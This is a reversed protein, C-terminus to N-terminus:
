HGGVKHGGEVLINAGAIYSSDDSALYAALSATEEPSAMRKLPISALALADLEDAPVGQAAAMGNISQRAMDTDVWGPSIANVLIGYPALDAAACEMLGLLAFKSTNYAVGTAEGRVGSESAVLIIRGGGGQKVMQQAVLQCCNYSGILNIGLTERFERETTELISKTHHVGANSPLADVAGYTEMCVQLVLALENRSRVDASQYVAPYRRSWMWEIVQDGAEPIRDSLVLRAGHAAFFESIARGIGRGAGTVIAIKGQLLM